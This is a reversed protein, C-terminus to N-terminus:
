VAVPTSEYINNSAWVWKRTRISIHFEAEKDLTRAECNM